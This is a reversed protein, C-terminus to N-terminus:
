KKIQQLFNTVSKKINGSQSLGPFKETINLASECLSLAEETENKLSHFIALHFKLQALRLGYVGPQVKELREIIELANQLDAGGGKVDDTNLKLM